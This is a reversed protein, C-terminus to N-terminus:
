APIPSGDASCGSTALPDGAVDDLDEPPNALAAAPVSVVVEVPTRDQHSGRMVQEILSMLADVRDFRRRAARAAPDTDPTEAPVNALRKAEHGLVTSFMAAEDPPL